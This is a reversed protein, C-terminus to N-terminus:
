DWWFRVNYTNRDKDNDIEDASRFRSTLELAEDASLLNGIFGEITVRWDGRPPVVKYGIYRIRGEGFEDALDLFERVTPSANQHERFPDQMWWKAFESVPENERAIQQVEEIARLIETRSIGESPFRILTM